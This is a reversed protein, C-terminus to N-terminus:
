ALSRFIRRDKSLKIMRENETGQTIKLSKRMNFFKERKENQMVKM